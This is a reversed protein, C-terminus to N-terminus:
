NRYIELINLLCYSINPICSLMLYQDHFSLNTALKVTVDQEYYCGSDVSVFQLCAGMNQQRSCLLM